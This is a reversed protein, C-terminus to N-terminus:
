SITIYAKYPSDIYKFTPWFSLWGKVGLVINAVKIHMPIDYKDVWNQFNRWTHISLDCKYLAHEFDDDHDNCFPCTPTDIKGYLFLKARTIYARHL